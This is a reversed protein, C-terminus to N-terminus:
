KGFRFPMKAQNLPIFPKSNGSLKYADMEIGHVHGFGFDCSRFVTNSQCFRIRKYNPHTLSCALLLTYYLMYSKYLCITYYTLLRRLLRFLYTSIVLVNWMSRIRHSFIALVHARVRPHSKRPRFVNLCSCIKLAILLHLKFLVLHTHTNTYVRVNNKAKHDKMIETSAAKREKSQMCIVHWNSKQLLMSLFECRTSKNELVANM